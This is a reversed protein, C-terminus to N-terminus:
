AERVTLVTKGLNARQELHTHAAPAEGLDFTADIPVTLSGRAVRSLLEALDERPDYGDEILGTIQFGHIRANKTYFDRTDITSPQLAVNAMAVVRGNRALGRLSESFADGGVLDLAVQVGRGDTLERIREVREEGSLERSDLVHEAGLSGVWERKSESGATAIVTAGLDAAIQVALSGVGSAGAHILVTEGRRLDALRHLTYWASLGATPLAAAATLPVDDPVAVVAAAPVAVREAYFGPANTAGTAVVRQGVAVDSVGDAVATVTGAGELGLRLPPPGARHYRGARALVDARNVGAAEVAIVVEGPGPVPDPVERLELAEPGGFKQVVVARM